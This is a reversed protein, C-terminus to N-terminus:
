WAYLYFVCSKTDRLLEVDGKFAPPNLKKFREFTSGSTMFSQVQTQSNSVQTQAESAQVQIEATHTQIEILREWNNLM